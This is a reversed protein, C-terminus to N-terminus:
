RTSRSTAPRCRSAVSKRWIVGPAV